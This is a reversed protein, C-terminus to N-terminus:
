IYIKTNVYKSIKEWWFEYETKRKEKKIKYLREKM